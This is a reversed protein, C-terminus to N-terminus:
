HEKKKDKKDRILRNLESLCDDVVELLDWAESQVTTQGYESFLKMTAEYRHKKGDKEAKKVVLNVEEPRELKRGLSGRLQNEIKNHVAAKEESVELGTLNVLVMNRRKLKAAEEIFDKVAVVSRPYNDEIIVMERRDNESMKKLAEKGSIHGENTLPLRNMVENVTIDSFSDKESGGAIKTDALTKGSTGGASQKKREIILKLLETSTLLGTLNGRDNLVPLRSINEDLMKHRAQEITDEEFVKIVQNSGLDLTTVQEFEKQDKFAERFEIDSVIGKLKGKETNVLLKRGSEIRLNALNAVTDETEFKPPQHMVKELKTTKPNFQVHRILDRYGIVGKLNDKTDVVSIARLKNEEMKNKTQALNQDNTVTIPENNMIESAKKNRIAM